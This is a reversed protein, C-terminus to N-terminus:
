TSVLNRMLFKFFILVKSGNMANQPMFLFSFEIYHYLKYVFCELYQEQVITLFMLGDLDGIVAPSIRNAYLSYKLYHIYM